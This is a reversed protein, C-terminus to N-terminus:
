LANSFFVICLKYLQVNSCTWFFPIAVVIQFLKHEVFQVDDDDDDDNNNRANINSNNNDYDNDDNNKNNNLSSQMLFVEEGSDSM